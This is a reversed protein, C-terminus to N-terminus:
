DKAISKNLVCDFTKFVFPPRYVCYQENHYFMKELLCYFTKFVFPPRCVCYQENYYFMKEKLGETNERKFSILKRKENMSVTYVGEVNEGSCVAQIWDTKTLPNRLRLIHCGSSVAQIWHIQILINCLLLIDCSKSYFNLDVVRWPVSM